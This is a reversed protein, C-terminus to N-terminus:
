ELGMLTATTGTAYIYALAYPYIVGAIVPFTVSATNKSQQFRATVNGSTLAHIARTHTAGNPGAVPAADSPTIAFAQTYRGSYLPDPM